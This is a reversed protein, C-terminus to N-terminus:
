LCELLELTEDLSRVIFARGSWTDFFEEQSPRLKGDKTKVEILYNKGRWGIVLDPCGGGVQSLVLVSVGMDRLADVIEQQNTDARKRM